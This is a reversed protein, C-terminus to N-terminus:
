SQKSMRELRWIAEEKAVSLHRMMNAAWTQVDSPFHSTKDPHVVRSGMRFKRLVEYSLQAAPAAGTIISLFHFTDKDNSDYDQDSNTPLRTRATNIGVNGLREILKRITARSDEAIADYSDTVQLSALEHVQSINEQANAELMDQEIDDHPNLDSSAM